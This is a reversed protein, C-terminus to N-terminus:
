RLLLPSAKFRWFADCCSIIIIAQICVMMICCITTSNLSLDSLLFYFLRSHRSCRTIVLLLLFILPHCIKTLTDALEARSKEVLPLDVITVSEHLDYIIIRIYFV